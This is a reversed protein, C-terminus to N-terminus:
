APMINQLLDPSVIHVSFHQLTFFRTNRHRLWYAYTTGKEQARFSSVGDPLAAIIFPSRKMASGGRSRVASRIILM